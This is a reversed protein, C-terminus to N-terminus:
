RYISNISVSIQIEYQKWAGQFTVRKIKKLLKYIHFDSKTSVHLPERVKARCSYNVAPHGATAKRSILFLSETSLSCKCGETYDSFWYNETIRPTQNKAIRLALKQGTLLIPWLTFKIHINFPGVILNELMQWITNKELPGKLEGLLSYVSSYKDMSLITQLQNINMIRIYLHHSLSSPLIHYFFNWMSFYCTYWHVTNMVITTLVRRTYPHRHALPEKNNNWIIKYIQLLFWTFM